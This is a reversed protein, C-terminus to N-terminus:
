NFDTSKALDKKTYFRQMTASLTYNTKLINKMVYKLMVIYRLKILILIIM